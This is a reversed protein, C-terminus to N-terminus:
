SAPELAPPVALSARAQVLASANFGKAILWVALVIEQMFIPLNLARDVPSMPAAVDLMALVADAMTLVAAVLGWGSQSRPILATRYFVSRHLLAGLGFFLVAM